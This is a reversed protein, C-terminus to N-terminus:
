RISLCDMGNTDTYYLLDPRTATIGFLMCKLRYVDYVGLEQALREASIQRDGGGVFRIHYELAKFSVLYNGALYDKVDQVDAGIKVFRNFMARIHDNAAKGFGYHEAVQKYNWGTM